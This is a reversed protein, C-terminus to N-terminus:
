RRGGMEEGEGDGKEEKKGGGEPAQAPLTISTTWGSQLPVPRHRRLTDHRRKKKGRKGRGTISELWEPSPQHSSTGEPFYSLRGKKKKKKKKKKKEGKKGGGTGALV